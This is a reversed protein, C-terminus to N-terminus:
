KSNLRLYEAVGIPLEGRSARRKNEDRVFPVRSITVEIMEVDHAVDTLAPVKLRDIPLEDLAPSSLVKRLIEIQRNTGGLLAVHGAKEIAVVAMSANQLKSRLLEVSALYGADASQRRYARAYLRFTKAEAPDAGNQGVSSFFLQWCKKASENKAVSEYLLALEAHGRVDGREIAERFYEVARRRTRDTRQGSLCLQGLRLCAGPSGLSRAREYRRRAEGLDRLEDGLGERAADASREVALWLPEDPSSTPHTNDDNDNTREAVETSARAVLDVVEHLPATFFERQSNYRHGLATLRAHVLDELADCDPTEVQYALVFPTPVGTASSLESVRKSPDDRTTKGVKLLGGMAPNLLIYVFGRCAM